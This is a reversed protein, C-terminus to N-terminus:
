RRGAMYYAVSLITAIVLLTAAIVSGIEFFWGWFWYVWEIFCIAFCAAYSSVFSAVGGIVIASILCIWIYVSTPLGLDVLPGPFTHYFVRENTGFSGTVSKVVIKISTGSFDTLQFLETTANAYSTKGDIKTYTTANDQRYITMEVKETTRTADSYTISVIGSSNVNVLTILSTAIDVDDPYIDLYIPYEASLSSPTFTQNVVRTLDPHSISLTYRVGPFMAFTVVGRDDSTGTQNTGLITSGWATGFLNAFWEFPNTAAVGRTSIIAGKVPNGYKSDLVRFTVFTSAYASGAGDTGRSAGTVWDFTITDDMDILVTTTVPTKGETTATITYTGTPVQFVSTGTSTNGEMVQQIGDNFTIVTYNTWTEGSNTIYITLDHVSVVNTQAMSDIFIYGDQYIYGIYDGSWGTTDL